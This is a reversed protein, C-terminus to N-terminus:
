ISSLTPSTAWPRSRCTIRLHTTRKIDDFAITKDDKEKRKEATKKVFFDSIMKDVTMFGSTIYGEWLSEYGRSREASFLETFPVKTLNMRITYDFQAKDYDIKDFVLLAWHNNSGPTKLMMNTAESESEFIKENEIVNDFIGTSDFGGNKLMGESTKIISQMEKYEDEDEPELIDKVQKYFDDAMAKVEALVGKNKACFYIKGLKKQGIAGLDALLLLFQAHTKQTEIMHTYPSMTFQMKLFEKMPIEAMAGEYASGGSSTLSITDICANKLPNKYSTDDIDEIKKRDAGEYVIKNGDNDVKLGSSWLTDKLDLVCTVGKQVKALLSYQEKYLETRGNPYIPLKDGYVKDQHLTDPSALYGILLTSMLIIASLVEVLLTGYGRIKSLFCKRLFARFQRMVSRPRKPIKPPKPSASVSASVSVSSSEQSSEEESSSDQDDDGSKSKEESDSEEKEESETEEEDSEEKESDDKEESESEKESEEKESEEKEESESEEKDSEEESENQSVHSSQETANEENVSSSSAIDNRQEESSSAVERKSHEESDSIQESTTSM